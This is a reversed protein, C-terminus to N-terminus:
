GRQLKDIDNFLDKQLQKTKISKKSDEDLSVLFDIVGLKKKPSNVNYLTANLQALMTEVRDALLPEEQSYEIWQYFERASMREDLEAVTM